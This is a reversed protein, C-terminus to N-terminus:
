GISVTLPPSTRGEAAEGRRESEGFREKVVVVGAQASANGLLVKDPGGEDQVSLLAKQSV